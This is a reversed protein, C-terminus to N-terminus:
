SMEAHAHLAAVNYKASNPDTGWQRVLGTGWADRPEVCVVFTHDPRAKTRAWDLAEVVHAVHSM